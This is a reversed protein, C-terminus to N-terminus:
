KGICFGAFIRELVDEHTTEGVLDALADLAEHVQAAPYEPSEGRELAAFAQATAAEARGVADRQRASALMESYAEGPPGGDLLAALEARLKEGTDAAIGCLPLTPRPLDWTKGAGAKQVTDIKNAIVLLRTGDLSEVTGSDEPSWGAAADFVYLVADAGGAAARARAVGMREVPDETPRLGATDVLEVPVGGIDLAADLTDRTTGPVETVIARETGILANFITSKGANPPGLLVVRAGEALLRGRQASGALRALEERARAIRGPTRPSVAEGVDEAFDITAALEAAAASLEERVGALRRSLSGDLRRASAAVAAETRAEILERVAEAEVLDLRGSLFARRTFEGPRAPRAGASVLASLVGRVVAPGGHVSLEAVDEGTASGPGPFFTVLGRDIPVGEAGLIAALRPARPTLKEPLSPAVRRLISGSDKGSLRLLALASRGPPTALAVITDDLSFPDPRM